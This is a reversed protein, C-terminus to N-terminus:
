KRKSQPLYGRLTSRVEEVTIFADPDEQNIAKMLAPLRKRPILVLLIKVAGQRGEGQVETVGYGAARLADAMADGKTLSIIRVTQYGLAMWGEITIGVLNGTAFGAAYGAVNWLNDLQTIVRSIALVFVTAEVLGLAAAVYKQGRVALITRVTGISVDIIRFSFITLAGLLPEM